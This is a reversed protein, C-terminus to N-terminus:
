EETFEMKTGDEIEKDSLNSNFDQCATRAEDYSLNTEQTIKPAAAFERWNTCSRLFTYYTKM